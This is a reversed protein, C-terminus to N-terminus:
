RADRIRWSAQSTGTSALTVGGRSPALRRVRPPFIEVDVGSAFHVLPAQSGVRIGDAEVLEDRLHLLRVDRLPYPEHHVQVTWLTPGRQVHLLYREILFYALTGPEAPGRAEGIEYRVHCAAPQRSHRRPAADVDGTGWRERGAAWFYRLGLSLRAGLVAVLSAADLSFFYVGPAGGAVHVYTRVNAELFALGALRPVGLPRAAQVFFPVLGVYAAGEHLDLSLSPPVLPRLRAPDVPWHVFLLRRWEQYGAPWGDPRQRARLRDALIPQGGVARGPPADGFSRPAAM